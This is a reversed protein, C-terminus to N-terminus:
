RKMKRRTDGGGKYNRGGERGRMTKEESCRKKKAERENPKKDKGM